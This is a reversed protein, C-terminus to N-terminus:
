ESPITIGSGGDIDAGNIYWNNAESAIHHWMGEQFDMEAAKKNGRYVVIKNNEVKCWIDNM